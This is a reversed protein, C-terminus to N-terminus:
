KVYDLLSDEQQKINILRGITEMMVVMPNQARTTNYMLVKIAILLEIPNNYITTDFDPHTDIHGRM